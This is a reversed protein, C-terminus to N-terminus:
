VTRKEPIPNLYVNSDAGHVHFRKGWRECPANIADLAAQENIKHIENGDHIPEGIFVWPAAYPPLGSERPL